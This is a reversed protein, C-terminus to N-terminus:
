WFLYIQKKNVDSFQSIVTKHVDGCILAELVDSTFLYLCM